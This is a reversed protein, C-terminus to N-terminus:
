QFWLFFIYRYLEVFGRPTLPIPSPRHSATSEPDLKKQLEIVYQVSLGLCDYVESFQNFFDCRGHYLSIEGLLTFVLCGYFHIVNCINFFFFLIFLSRFRMVRFLSSIGHMAGVRIWNRQDNSYNWLKLLVNCSVVYLCCLCLSFHFHCCM